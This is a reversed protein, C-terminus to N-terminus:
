LELIQWLKHKLLELVNDHFFKATINNHHYIDTNM